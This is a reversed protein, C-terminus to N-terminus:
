PNPSPFPFPFPFMLPDLPEHVTPNELKEMEKEKEKEKERVLFATLKQMLM